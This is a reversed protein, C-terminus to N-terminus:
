QLKDLEVDTIDTFQIIEARPKGARLMKLAVSIKGEKLVDEHWKSAKAEPMSMGQLIGENLLDERWKRAKAGMVEKAETFNVAKDIFDIKAPQLVAYNILEVFLQRLNDYEPDKLIVELKDMLPSVQEPTADCIAFLLEALTAQDGASKSSANLMIYKQQLQLDQLEPSLKTGCEGVSLPATWNGSGIFLVIPIIAPKDGDLTIVRAKYLGQLLLANYEAIRIPMLKDSTRQFELMFYFYLEGDGSKIRWLCDNFRQRLTKSVHSINWPELTSWDLGALIMQSLFSTLLSEVMIKHSFFAKFLADWPTNQRAQTKKKGKSKKKSM